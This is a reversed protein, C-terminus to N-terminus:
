NVQNNMFIFVRDKSEPRKTASDYILFPKGNKTAFESGIEIKRLDICNLTTGGAKRKRAGAKTLNRYTPM